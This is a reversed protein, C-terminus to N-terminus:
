VAGSKKKKEFGGRRRPNERGSEAARKERVGAERGGGCDHRTGFWRRLNNLPRGLGDPLRIEIEEFPFTM